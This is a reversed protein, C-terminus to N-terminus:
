SEKGSIVEETKTTNRTRTVSCPKGCEGCRFRGLGTATTEPSIGFGGIARGADMVLPEKTARVNHCVSSYLFIPEGLKAVRKTKQPKKSKKQM